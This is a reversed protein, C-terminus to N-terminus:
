RHANFLTTQKAISMIVYEGVPLVYIVKVLVERGSYSDTKPFYERLLLFDGVKFDRDNKRYEFTKEGSLIPEFYQRWIKLEHTM